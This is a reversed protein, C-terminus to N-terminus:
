IKISATYSEFDTNIKSFSPSNRGSKIHNTLGRSIAFNAENKITEVRRFTKVSSFSSIFLRPSLIQVQSGKCGM